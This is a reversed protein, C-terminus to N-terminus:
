GPLVNAALEVRAGAALAVARTSDTSGSDVVVVEDVLGTDAALARVCSVITGVTAEEDLAPLVVSVTTTGKAARLQAVPWDEARSTRRAYWREADPRM